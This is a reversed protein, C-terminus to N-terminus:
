IKGNSKEELSKCYDFLDMIIMMLISLKPFYKSFPEALVEYSVELTKGNEKLSFKAAYQEPIGSSIVIEETKDPPQLVFDKENFHTGYRKLIQSYKEPNKLFDKIKSYFENIKM